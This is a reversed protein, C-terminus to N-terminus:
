KKKIEEIMRHWLPKLQKKISKSNMTNAARLGYRVFNRKGLHSYRSYLKRKYLEKRPLGKEIKIRNRKIKTQKALRVGRKMRESYRALSSSRLTVNEGDFIFGLYQLPKNATLRGDKNVFERIVTKNTNISLEVREIEEIARKEVEDRLSLPMIFLMDDCYRLYKGNHRKAFEHARQDFELMYINSLLASLPSGQPIGFIEKNVTILGSNRVLDRFESPSCIRKRGSKPNHLSIGLKDYVSEKDVTVFRTLSRFIAYHDSPLKDTDLLISWQKKLVDHDLNDFFGKIDLAVVACEGFKKISNFADSAFDINSLGLARFALVSDSISLRNIEEEYLENLKWAYYAYIHSDMHAAYAIPRDKTKKKLENTGTEKYIKESTVKYSIFPYFAHKAVRKPSTVVHLASSLGVPQDFHLYRRSKYWPHNKYKHM